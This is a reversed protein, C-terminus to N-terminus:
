QSRWLEQLQQSRTESTLESSSHVRVPLRAASLPRQWRGQSESHPSALRLTTSPLLLKHAKQLLSAETRLEAAGVEAGPRTLSAIVTAGPLPAGPHSGSQSRSRQLSTRGSGPASGASLASRPRAAGLRTPLQFSQLGLSGPGPAVLVQSPGVICSESRTIHPIRSEEVAQATKAQAAAAEYPALLQRRVKPHSSILEITGITASGETQTIFPLVGRALQEEDRPDNHFSLTEPSRRKRSPSSSTPSSEGHYLSDLDQKLNELLIRKREERDTADQFLREFVQRKTRSTPSSTPSINSLGLQLAMEAFEKQTRGPSMQLQDLMKNLRELEHHLQKSREGWAAAESTHADQAQKAIKNATEAEARAKALDATLQKMRHLDEAAKEELKELQKKLEGGAHAGATLRELEKKLSEVQAELEKIKGAQPDGGVQVTTRMMGLRVELEASSRQLATHQELLDM